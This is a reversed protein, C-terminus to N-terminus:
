WGTGMARSLTDACRPGGDGRSLTSGTGADGRGGPEASGSRPHHGGAVEGEGVAGGLLRACRAGGRDPGCGVRRTASTDSRSTTISAGSSRFPTSRRPGALMDQAASRARVSPSSGTSSGSREGTHADPWRAADGAAFIGPRQRSASTSSRRRRDVELGAAEALAVAPRVGVGIVVLDAPLPNRGLSDRARTSRRVTRGSPLRRRAGRPDVPRLPRARAWCGSSRCPRPRQGRGRRRRARASRRGGRPRHLERRRRGRAEGAAARAIIARSDALWRLTLRASRRGPFPCGCRARRRDRAAARRLSRRGTSSGSRTDRRSRHGHGPRGASDIGARRLVGAPAAADLGRTRDRRPLGEVPQASRRPGADASFLTLSGDIARAGSCRRRPTAGGRGRRRHRDRPAGLRPAAPLRLRHRPPSTSRRGEDSWRWCAVPNLAPARLAEGRGCAFCAHHWPCRVTDGVVLGEALPGGYHTCKAGVAFFEGGSRVLLVADSGVHGELSQGEALSEAEVGAALDPGTPQSEGASM